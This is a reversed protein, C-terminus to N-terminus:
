QSKKINKKGRTFRDRGLGLLLHSILTGRWTVLLFYIFLYTFNDRGCADSRLRVVSVSGERQVLQHCKRRKPSVSSVEKEKSQTIVSGESQVSRHCKRRKPSIAAELTKSQSPLLRTSTWLRKPPLNLRWRWTRLTLWALLSDRNSTALKHRLWQAHYRTRPTLYCNAKATSKHYNFLSHTLRASLLFKAAAQYQVQKGRSRGPDVAGRGEKENVDARGDAWRGGPV